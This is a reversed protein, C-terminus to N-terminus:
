ANMRERAFDDIRARRRDADPEAFARLWRTTDAAFGSDRRLRDPWIPLGLVAGALDEAGTAAARLRAMEAGMPDTTVVGGADPM